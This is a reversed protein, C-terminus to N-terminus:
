EVPKPSKARPAQGILEQLEKFILERGGADVFETARLFHVLKM